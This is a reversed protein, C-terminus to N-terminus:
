LMLDNYGINNYCLVSIDVLGLMELGQINIRNIYNSM